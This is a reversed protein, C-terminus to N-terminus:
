MQMPRNRMRYEVPPPYMKDMIPLGRDLRKRTLVHFMYDTWSDALDFDFAEITVTEIYEKLVLSLKQIMDTFLRQYHVISVISTSPPPSVRLVEIFMNAAYYFNCTNMVFFELEPKSMVYWISEIVERTMNALDLEISQTLNSIADSNEKNLPVGTNFNNVLSNLSKEMEEIVALVILDLEIVGMNNMLVDIAVPSNKRSSMFSPKPYSWDSKRWWLSQRIYLAAEDIDTETAGNEFFHQATQDVLPLLKEFDKSFDYSIYQGFGALSKFFAEFASQRFSIRFREIGSDTVSNESSQQNNPDHCTVCNNNTSNMTTGSSDTNSSDPEEANTHFVTNNNVEANNTSEINRKANVNMNTSADVDADVVAEEGFYDGTDTDRNGAGEIKRADDCVVNDTGAADIDMNDAADTKTNDAAGINTARSADTTTCSPADNDINCVGDVRPNGTVDFNTNSTTGAIAIVSIADITNSPMASM